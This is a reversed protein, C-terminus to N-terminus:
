RQGRWVELGEHGRRREGVGRALHPAAEKVHRRGLGELLEVREEGLGDGGAPGGDLLEERAARQQRPQVELAV